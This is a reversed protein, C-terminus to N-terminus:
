EEILYSKELDVKLFAHASKRKEKPPLERWNGYLRTLYEDSKEAGYVETDEFKYLTAKGFFAKPMVEKFGYNGLLIGVQQCEDYPQSKCAQDVKERLKKNDLIANPVKSLLNIALNKILARDKRYACTRALLLNHLFKVRKYNKMCEKESTGVGDLPFVDLFAGRKLPVQMDEVITTNKNYLKSYPYCFDENDSYATELVYDAHEELEMIKMFKEYDNRPMGVDIDDDWPIFGQHRVAGLMTGGLVYYTLNNEVCTKHFWKMMELLTKQLELLYASM